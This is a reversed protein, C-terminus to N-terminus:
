SWPRFWSAGQMAVAALLVGAQALECAAGFVDGSVGGLRRWALVGLLATSLLAAAFLMLGGVGGCLVAIILASVLAAAGAPGRAGRQFGRGLGDERAYPLAAALAVMAGRGLAPAAVLTAGRPAGHLSGLAANALLLYLVV